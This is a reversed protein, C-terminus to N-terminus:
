GIAKERSPRGYYRSRSKNSDDALMRRGGYPSVIHPEKRTAPLLKKMASAKEQNKELLEKDVQPNQALLKALDIKRM